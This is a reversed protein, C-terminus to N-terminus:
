GVVQWSSMCSRRVLKTGPLRNMFQQLTPDIEIVERLLWVQAKDLDEDNDHNCLFQWGSDEPSVPPSRLAMLIPREGSAVHQCLVAALNSADSGNFKHTTM